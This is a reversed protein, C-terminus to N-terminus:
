GFGAQPGFLREFRRTAAQQTGLGHSLRGYKSGSRRTLQHPGRGHSLGASVRSKPGSRRTVGQQPRLGQWLGGQQPGLGHGLGGSWKSIM